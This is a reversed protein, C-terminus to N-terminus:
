RWRPWTRSPRMLASEVEAPYINEGGSIIMDKMRDHIFLYGDEDLYGADGTRLWGDRRADPRDGRAPELLGCTPASRTAIEGVERPPLAQRGRDLIKMEVGPLPLGASRMRELGEPDHDEPPLYVITGTTETMGYLQCSAAASCARHMRKLLALRFRRPAM